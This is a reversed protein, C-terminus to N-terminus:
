YPLIMRWFSVLAEDSCDTQWYTNRARAGTEKGRTHSLANRSLTVSVRCRRKKAPELLPAKWNLASMLITKLQASAVGLLLVFAILVAAAEEVGYQVLPKDLIPLMEKPM